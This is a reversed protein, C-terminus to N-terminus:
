NGMYSSFILPENNKNYNNNNDDDVDGDKLM